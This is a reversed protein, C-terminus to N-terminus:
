PCEKQNNTIPTLNRFLTKNLPLYRKIHTNIETINDTKIINSIDTLAIYYIPKTFEKAKSLELTVWKSEHLNKSNIVWITDAEKIQKYVEKQPDVVNKNDLIDIFTIIENM